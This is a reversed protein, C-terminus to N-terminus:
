RAHVCVTAQGKFSPRSAYTMVVQKIFRKNGKLDIWRTEGGQAIRSRVQVDDVEGNGYVIKLDRMEIDNGRVRLQVAKYRGADKGVPIVDTDNVFGVARCGLQEAAAGSAAITMGIAVAVFGRVIRNM